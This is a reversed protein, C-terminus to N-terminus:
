ANATELISLTLEAANIRDAQISFGDGAELVLKGTLLSGADQIPIKVNAILRTTNAGRRHAATVTVTSTDINSVQALLVVTTVGAPATYVTNAANTVNSIITKFSNLPIASAM